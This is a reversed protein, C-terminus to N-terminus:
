NKEVIAILNVVSYNMYDYLHDYPNIDINFIIDIHCILSRFDDFDFLLDDHLNDNISKIRKYTNIHIMDIVRNKIIDYM